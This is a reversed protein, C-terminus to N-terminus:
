DEFEIEFSKLDSSFNIPDQMTPTVTGTGEGPNSSIFNWSEGGMLVARWLGQENWTPGFWITAADNPITHTDSWGAANIAEWDVIINGGEGATYYDDNASYNPASYLMGSENATKTGEIDIPNSQLSKQGETPSTIKWEV